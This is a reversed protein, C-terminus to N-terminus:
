LGGYVLKRLKPVDDSDATRRADDLSAEFLNRHYAAIQSNFWPASPIALLRALTGDVIIYQFRDMYVEDLAVADRSPKVAVEGSLSGSAEPAPYLLVSNLTNQDRLYMKPTGVVSRWGSDDVDLLTPSRPALRAGDLSLVVPRVLVTDCPLTLEVSSEGPFVPQESITFRFCEARDALERAANRANRIITPMPCAAAVSLVESALERFEVEAM